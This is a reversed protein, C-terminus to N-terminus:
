NRGNKVWEAVRKMIENNLKQQAEAIAPLMTETITVGMKQLADAVSNGVEQGAERGAAAVDKEGIGKAGSRKATPGAAAVLPGFLDPRQGGPGFLDARSTGGGLLNGGGVARAGTGGGLGGPGGLRRVGSGRDAEGIGIVGEPRGGIGTFRSPTVRGFRMSDIKARLAKMAEEIAEKGAAQVNKKQELDLQKLKADRLAGDEESAKIQQKRVELVQNEAKAIELVNAGRLEAETRLNEAALRQAEFEKGVAEAAKQEAIKKTESAAQLDINERAIKNNEVLGRGEAQNLAIAQQIQQLKKENDAIEEKRAKIAAADGTKIKAQGELLKEETALLVARERILLARQDLNGKEAADLGAKKQEARAAVLPAGELGIGAREFELNKRTAASASLIDSQKKEFEMALGADKASKALAEFREVEIQQAATFALIDATTSKASLGLKALMDARKSQAFGAEQASEVERATVRDLEQAMKIAAVGAGVILGSAALSAAGALSIGSKFIRAAGDAGHLALTVEHGAGTASLMSRGFQGIALEAGRVRESTELGKKGLADLAPTAGSRAEEKLERLGAIVSVDGNGDRTVRLLVDLIEEAM